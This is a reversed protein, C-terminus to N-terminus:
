SEVSLIVCAEQFPIRLTRCGCERDKQLSILEVHAVSYMRPLEDTSSHSGNNLCYLDHKVTLGDVRWLQLELSEPQSPLLFRELLSSNVRHQLFSSFAGSLSVSFM